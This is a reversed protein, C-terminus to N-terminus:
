ERDRLLRLWEAERAKRILEAREAALLGRESEIAGIAILVEELLDARDQMEKDRGALNTLDTVIVMRSDDYKTMAEAIAMQRAVKTKEPDVEGDEGTVDFGDAEGKLILMEIKLMLANDIREQDQGAKMRAATSYEDIGDRMEPITELGAAVLDMMADHGGGMCGTLLMASFLLFLLGVRNKEKNKSHRLKGIVVGLLILLVGAITEGTPGIQLQLWSAEEESVTMAADTALLAGVGYTLLGCITRVLMSKWQNERM